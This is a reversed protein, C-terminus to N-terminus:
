KSVISMERKSSTKKKLFLFMYDFSVYEEVQKKYLEKETNVIQMDNYARKREDQKVRLLSVLDEFTKDTPL